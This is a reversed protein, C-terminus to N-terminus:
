EVKVVGITEIIRKKEIPYILFHDGLDLLRENEGEQIHLIIKTWKEAKENKSNNIIKSLDRLPTQNKIYIDIKEIMQISEQYKKMLIPDESAKTEEKKKFNSNEKNQWPKKEGNWEKKAPRHVIKQLTHPNNNKVFDQLLRFDNAIVRYGGDDKKIMCDFQLQFHEKDDLWDKHAIILDNSFLAVEIMGYADSLSIFAYRGKPGSKISTSIVVGAVRIKDGDIIEPNDLENSYTIGRDDLDKKLMDLPHGELYFGFAEFEKQYREVGFWDDTKALIPKANNSMLDGFLSMQSTNKEENFSVCYKSLVECSDHIQKRNKHINDFAGAKSLAEMTKKNIVKGDMREVFDFIDKFPGNKNREAVIDEGVSIGVGKIGALGYRAAIEKGDHYIKANKFIADKKEKSNPDIDILEVNFLTESKNIDPPLIKVGHEKLDKLYFNVKDSDAIEMNTTSLIFEVPFYYKLYATQYSIVSYAAAHAKNFGYEAFKALLDFIKNSLEEDIDSFKKAGEVFVGRQRIMEEKIKKGMARRLLDAGGLTYGALAKAINMVQEQYIIIGYTDKLIPEMKPHLYEIPELGHKRAIYTPISAMPGPRYLSVLAIIDEINDPKMQKLISKMGSSEVQFVAVSDGNVLMDYVEKDDLPINDIDITINRRKIFDLADKIITLTKLGLFDFKVLGVDECYHKDYQVIPMSGSEGDYYLACIQQLPKDGIVVGAAHMSTHRNLGELELAISILEGIQPDTQQQRRLDEDQALAEELTANMPIMKSIKDVETYGMQLVRGVDKIVMKSQLKGFTIIQAVMDYGYKEQVYHISRERGRQCFDVDFDPMSVREPNLFREFFLSFRIPDLDTIKMAWAVVSGAGSGRGPGIPVDHNKSWNIFDAVILFYGPFDMKTIVDIEYNLQDFYQQHIKKKEEEDTINENKYKQELRKELGEESLKRMYDAETMGEPLQFHPLTPKRKYAMSTIRKAINITNELAEPIDAFLEAMEDPNKFYYEPNLKKRDTETIYRSTGICSLVDQAKFMSKNLFYCDNTAVLPINHKYALDIFDKETEIEEKIGHRMLEMYLRDGFIDKLELLIKEALEPRKKLLLKGVLGEYGGTLCIIGKNKERLWDFEIHPEINGKRQLFNESDLAVINYFGEDTAALLVIKCFNKEGYPDGEEKEFYGKAEVLLEIGIIPQIGNKSADCSYELAGCMNKTDTIAVAPMGYEQAKAIMKKIKVAGLCISYETHNRLHIFKPEVAM